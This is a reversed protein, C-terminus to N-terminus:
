RGACSESASSSARMVSAMAEVPAADMLSMPLTMPTTFALAAPLASMAATPARMLAFSPPQCGGHTASSQGGGARQDEDREDADGDGALDLVFAAFEPPSWGKDKSLEVHVFDLGYFPHGQNEIRGYMHVGCDRCAYRQITATPDVVQLKQANQTVALNQRPVVAVVSFM